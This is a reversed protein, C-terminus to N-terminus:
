DGMKINLIKGDKIESEVIQFVKDRSGCSLEVQDYKQDINKMAQFHPCWSGCATNSFIPQGLATSGSVYPQANFACVVPTENKMLTLVGKNFEKLSFKNEM